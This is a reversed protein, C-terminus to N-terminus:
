FLIIFYMKYHKIAEGIDAGCGLSGELLFM